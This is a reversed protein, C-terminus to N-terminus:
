AAKSSFIRYKRHPSIMGGGFGFLFYMIYYTILTIISCSIAVRIARHFAQRFNYPNIDTTTISKINEGPYHVGSINNDRELEEFQTRKNEVNVFYAQVEISLATIIGCCIGMLIFANFLTQARMYPYPILSMEYTM